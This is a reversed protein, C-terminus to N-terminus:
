RLLPFSVMGATEAAVGGLTKIVEIVKLGIDKAKSAKPNKKADAEANLAEIKKRLDEPTTSIALNKFGKDPVLQEFEALANKWMEAITGSEPTQLSM